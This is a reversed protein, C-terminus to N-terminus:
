EKPVLGVETLISDVKAIYEVERFQVRKSRAFDLVSQPNIAPRRLLFACKRGRKGKCRVMGRGRARATAMTLRLLRWKDAVRLAARPEPANRQMAGGGWGGCGERGERGEGSAKEGGNLFSPLPSEVLHPKCSLDDRGESVVRRWRGGGGKTIAASPLGQHLFHTHPTLTDHRHTECRSAVLFALSPPPEPCPRGRALSTTWSVSGHGDTRRGDVWWIFWRLRPRGLRNNMHTEREEAHTDPPDM